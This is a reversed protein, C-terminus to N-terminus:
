RVQTGAEAVQRGGGPGGEGGVGGRGGRAVANGSGIWRAAPHSRGERAVPVVRDKAAVTAAAARSGGKVEPPEELVRNQRHGPSEAPAAAAETAARSWRRQGDHGM